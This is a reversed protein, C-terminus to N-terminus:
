SPILCVIPPRIAVILVGVENRYCIILVEVLGLSISPICVIYIALVWGAKGLSLAILAWISIDVGVVLASLNMVHLGHIVCIVLNCM